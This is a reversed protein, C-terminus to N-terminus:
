RSTMKTNVEQFRKLYNKYAELTKTYKKAFEEARELDKKYTEM